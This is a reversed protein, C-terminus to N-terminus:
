KRRFRLLVGAAAVGLLLVSSPEPIATAAGVISLEKYATYNAGSGNGIGDYGNNLYTIQIASVGSILADGFNDEITVKSANYVGNALGDPDYHYSYLINNLPGTVAEGVLAYRIEINQWIRDGTWGAFSQISFIDYGATNVSTDLVYVAYPASFTAVPSDLLLTQPWGDAPGVIGDNVQAWSAFDGGAPSNGGIYAATLGQIISSPPTYTAEPHSVPSPLYALEGAGFAEGFAPSGAAAIVVLAVFVSHLSKM